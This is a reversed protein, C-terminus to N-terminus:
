NSEGKYKRVNNLRQLATEEDIVETCEIKIEELEDMGHLRLIEMKHMVADINQYVSVIDSESYPYRQTVVFVNM